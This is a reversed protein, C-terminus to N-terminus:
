NRRRGSIALLRLLQLVATLAAAVYTLAAASLVKRSQKLEEGQLYAGTELAQLARHSANFEVPLTVLYFLVVACFVIIGVDLLFPLSLVLGLFILVWAAQSSFSAVPAIVSRLRLPLYGEAHQLAHGCEHAAVGIAAVSASNFTSQSLSLVRNRPDYNDTLNGGIQRIQVDYLGNADLLRRAVDAASLNGAARVQAYRRYTSQVKFQAFASLLMAPLLFYFYSM